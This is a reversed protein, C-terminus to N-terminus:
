CSRFKREFSKVFFKEITPDKKNKTLEHEKNEIKRGIELSYILEEKLFNITIQAKFM